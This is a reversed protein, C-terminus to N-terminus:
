DLTTRERFIKIPKVKVSRARVDLEVGTGSTGSAVGTMSADSADSASRMGVSRAVSASGDRPSSLLELFLGVINTPFTGSLTVLTLLANFSNRLSNEGNPLIRDYLNLDM